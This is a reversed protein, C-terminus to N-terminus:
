GNILFGFCKEKKNGDLDKAKIMEKGNNDWGLEMVLSKVLSESVELLGTDECYPIKGLFLCIVM